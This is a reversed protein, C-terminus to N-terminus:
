VETLINDTLIHHALIIHLHKLHSACRDIYQRYTYHHALIIQLHELHATVDLCSCNICSCNLENYVLHAHPQGSKTVNHGWFHMGYNTKTKLEAM